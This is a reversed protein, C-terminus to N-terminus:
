GGSTEVRYAGEFAALKKLKRRLSRAVRPLPTITPADAVLRGQPESGRFLKSKTLQFKPRAPQQDPTLRSHYRAACRYIRPRDAPTRQAGSPSSPRFRENDALIAM